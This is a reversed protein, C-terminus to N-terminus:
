MDFLSLQKSGILPQGNITMILKGSTNKHINFHLSQISILMQEIKSNDFFIEWENVAIPMSFRLLIRKQDKEFNQLLEFYKNSEREMTYIM